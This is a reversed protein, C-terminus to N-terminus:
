GPASVRTEHAARGDQSEVLGCVLSGQPLFSMVRVMVSTRVPRARGPLAV